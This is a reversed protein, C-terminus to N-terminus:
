YSLKRLEYLTKTSTPMSSLYVSYSTLGEIRAYLHQYANTLPAKINRECRRKLQFRLARIKRRFKKRTKVESPKVKAGVIEAAPSDVGIRTTYNKEPHAIFGTSEIAKKLATKAANIREKRHSYIILVCDDAYRLFVGGNQKTWNEMKNDLKRAVLNLIHPSVPSGTALKGERCCIRGLTHLQWGTLNPYVELWLKRVQERKITPFAKRMDYGIITAKSIGLKKAAESAATANNKGKTFGHARGSIKLTELAELARKQMTKLQPNPAEIVRKESTGKKSIEFTHYARERLIERAAKGSGCNFAFEKFDKGIYQLISTVTLAATPTEYNESMSFRRRDRKIKKYATQM